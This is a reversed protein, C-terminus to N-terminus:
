VVIQPTIQIFNIVGRIVLELSMKSCLQKAKFPLEKPTNKLIIFFIISKQSYVWSEHANVKYSVKDRQGEYLKNQFLGKRSM